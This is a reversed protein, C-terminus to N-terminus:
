LSSNVLHFVSFISLRTFVLPSACSVQLAGEYAEQAVSLEFLQGHLIEKPGVTHLTNSIYKPYM